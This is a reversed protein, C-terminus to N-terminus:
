DESNTVGKIIGENQQDKFYQQVRGPPYTGQVTTESSFESLSPKIQLQQAFPLKVHYRSNEFCNHVPTTDKISISELDWLRQPTDM